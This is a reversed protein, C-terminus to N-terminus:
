TLICHYFPHFIFTKDLYITWFLERIYCNLTLIIRFVSGSGSDIDAFCLFPHFNYVLIIGASVSGVPSTPSLIGPSYRMSMPRPRSSSGPDPTTHGPKGAEGVPESITRNRALSDKDRYQKGSPPHPAGRPKSGRFIFWIFLRYM